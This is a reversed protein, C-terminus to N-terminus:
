IGRWPPPTTGTVGPRFRLLAGAYPDTLMSQEDYGFCASTVYMEELRAGGFALSTVRRTPAWLVTELEGGPAYRHIRGTWQMAVWVCGDADVAIGEPSGESEGVLVWQRGAVARARDPDYDYVRIVRADVAYMRGGDPSWAIGRTATFGRALLRARNGDLVYFASGQPEDVHTTTGAVFRGAPDCTGGSMRDGNHVQVVPELAARGLHVRAFGHETAAILQGNRSAGLATVAAPLVDVEDAGSDRHYTHLERRLLDVWYVCNLAPMWLPSSGHLAQRNVLLEFEDSM